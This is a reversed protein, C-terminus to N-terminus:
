VLSKKRFLYDLLNLVPGTMMTTFLAMIVMITFLTPTLIGLDYGINLVILEMLGRTNMLAGISLSEKWSHGILKSIFTSGGFKGLVAIIIICGCTIWLHGDNLLNIQTRLGTFAFFIPLLVLTSVDELKELHLTKINFKQPMIAGAIFAGFFAHIGIIETLSASLLLIIFVIIVSSKDHNNDHSERSSIKKIWPRIVYFMIIFFLISVTFTFLASELGSSRVIAIVAALICWATVDDIAACTIALDGLPTKTLKREHLIRALIPFATISISIGMFLAFSTFNVDPPAFEKFLIFSSCIGLLFPFFISVHSILLANKAKSKINEFDLEMGIIFMFFVLGVQSLFQLNSFSNKPFLFNFFEPFFHGILSPGLFIGAIMEGIVSPQGFKKIIFGFLKSIILITLIQLLLIVFPSNLQNLLQDTIISYPSSDSINTENLPVQNSNQISQGSKSNTYLDNGIHICLGIFCVLIGVIMPYLMLSKKM